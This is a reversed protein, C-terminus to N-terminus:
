IGVAAFIRFVTSMSHGRRQLWQALKQKRKAHPQGASLNAQQTCVKVLHHWADEEERSLAEAPLHQRDGFVGSLAGQIHQQEVGRSRLEYALRSPSYAKTRWYGRVYMDAFRADSQLGAQQLAGLVQQSQQTSYGLSQLKHLVESACRERFQLFRGLKAIASAVLEDTSIVPHQPAAHQSQCDERGASAPM